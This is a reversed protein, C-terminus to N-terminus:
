RITAAPRQFEAPRRSKHGGPSKRVLRGSTGSADYHVDTAIHPQEHLVFNLLSEHIEISGSYDIFGLKRFKNMFFSVRSRTTGIMAALTEQSINPIIPTPAGKKGINALLLLTRALRKGSSNFLQDVLDAEIRNVRALLHAMFM